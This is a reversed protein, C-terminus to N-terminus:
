ICFVTAESVLNWWPFSSNRFKEETSEKFTRTYSVFFERNRKINKMRNRSM